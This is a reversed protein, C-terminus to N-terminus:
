EENSNGSELEKVEPADVTDVRTNAGYHEVIVTIKRDEVKDAPVKSSWKAKDDAELVMHAGVVNATSIGHEKGTRQAGSGVQNLFEEAKVAGIRAVIRKAKDFELKFEVDEEIWQGVVAETFQEGKSALRNCAATFKGYRLFEDLFFQQLEVRESEGLEVTRVKAAKTKGKGKKTM